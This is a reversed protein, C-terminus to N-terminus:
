SPGEPTGTDHRTPWPLRLRDRQVLRLRLRLPPPCTVEVVSTDDESGLSPLRALQVFRPSHGGDARTFCRSDGIQSVGKTGSPLAELSRGPRM